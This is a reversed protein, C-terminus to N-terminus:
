LLRQMIFDFFLLLIPISFWGREKRFRAVVLCVISSFTFGLGTYFIASARVRYYDAQTKAQQKEVDSRNWMQARISTSRVDFERSTAHLVLALAALVVACLFYIRGNM